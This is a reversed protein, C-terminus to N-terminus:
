QCCQLDAWHFIQALSGGEHFPNCGHVQEQNDVSIYDGAEEYEFVAGGDVLFVHGLLAHRDENMSRDANAYMVLEKEIGGFLLWLTIFRYVRKM